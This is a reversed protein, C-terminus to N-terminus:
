MRCFTASVGQFTVSHEPAKKDICYKILGTMDVHIPLSPVDPFMRSFRRVVLKQKSSYGWIHVIAWNSLSYLSKYISKTVSRICLLLTPSTKKRWWCGVIAFDGLGGQLWRVSDRRVARQRYLLSLGVRLWLARTFHNSSIWWTVTVCAVILLVRCRETSSSARSSITFPFVLVRRGTMYWSTSSAKACHTSAYWALILM